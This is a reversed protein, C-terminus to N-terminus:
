RLLAGDLAEQATLFRPEPLGVEKLQPAVAKRDGVLVLVGGEVAVYRTALAGLVDPASGLAARVDAALRSPPLGYRAYPEYVRLAGSLTGFAEVVAAELTAAAKKTEAATFPGQRARAFERAFEQLSPGTMDTKVNAAAVFIGRGDLTAFRSSAGYTYGHKERLNANLRSTFSGGLITNLVELGVRVDSQFGVGPHVFRIVTQAAGPRDIFIVRLPTKERAPPGARPTRAQGQKWSGLHKEVLARAEDNRLDGALLLTAGEPGHNRDHYARAQEVTLAKVTRPYGDTAVAYPDGAGYYAERAARAALDPAHDVIQRLQEILLARQHEFSKPEFRPRCLASGLLAFAGDANRKLVALAVEAYETYATATLTAGLLHLANAFGLATLDGAGELLMEAALPAVGAEGPAVAAGGGPLVFRAAVLPLHPRDLHWVTLGNPLTFVHPVPPTFSPQVFDPPRKERTVAGPDAQPRPLIRMVLRRDPQLVRRAWDRVAARDTKEYRELDWALSDPRGLYADYHNLMDALDNLDQLRSVSSTEIDARGRKMENETPGARRYHALEEDIISEITELPVGPRALVDVRFISGLRRSQQYVITEVALKEERVLRKYLRGNKGAGLAFATLDMEADGARYFAPSHWTMVIRPLQVDDTLTVREAREFRAIPASRRPPEQGRPISGFLGRILPKVKARDFDGAVVLTANNPVYYTEFFHKVDEVKAAILDEHSGIVDFHYPHDVPYMLESIKIEAPGYPANDYGERRENRVVERQLDLKKQTMADGLSEMRDAELWLLTPLLSAPAVDYYNTRDYGTSANNWGGGTEMIVDFQSDPVRKTGMFMLHEFLHAFGSRGRPEERTGVHYWINVVVQPLKHNEHLIVTLGNPLQYKEHSLIEGARAPTAMACACLVLLALARPLATKM